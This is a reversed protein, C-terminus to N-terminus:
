SFLVEYASFMQFMNIIMDINEKEKDTCVDSLDSLMQLARDSEDKIECMSISPTSTSFVQATKQLEMYKILVALTKQQNWEMYPLITKMIQLEHSQLQTDFSTPKYENDM